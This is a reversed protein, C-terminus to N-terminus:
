STRTNLRAVAIAERRFREAVVEDSALNPKLWKVAVRRDLQEDVAVWVEAMGGQGIRRELRYRDALVRAAHDVPGESAPPSSM